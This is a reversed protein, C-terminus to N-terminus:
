ALPPDMSGAGSARRYTVVWGPVPGDPEKRVIVAAAPGPVLGAAAAAQDVRPRAHAFRATPRLVLPRDAAEFSLALWGGVRLARGVAALLAALDGVYPAVDAATVLGLSAAPLGALIAVGDGEAVASYVGRSRALTVMRPAVDVALLRCGSGALAAGVLGSGCGIDLGHGWGEVPTLPRLLMAITAPVRYALSGVVHREFRDAYGDFLERVYAAPAARIARGALAACMHRATAHGPDLAAVRRFGAAARRRDGRRDALAAATYHGVPDCPARAILRRAVTEAGHDDEADLCADLLRRWPGPESPSRAIARLLATRRPRSM